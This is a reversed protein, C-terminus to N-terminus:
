AHHEERETAMSRLIRRLGIGYQSLSGRLPRAERDRVLKAFQWLADLITVLLGSHKRMLQVHAVARETVSWRRSATSSSAGGDTIVTVDRAVGISRGMRLLRLHFDLEEAFMFFREDFGGVEQFLDRRLVMCCGSMSQAPIVEGSGRTEPAPLKRNLATPLNRANQIADGSRDLLSPGILDLDHDEAIRVLSRLRTFDVEVDPNVIAIWDAGRAQAVGRNTATGFGVNAVIRIMEEGHEATIASSADFDASGSDVVVVRDGPRRGPALARLFEDLVHSSNHAVTVLAITL